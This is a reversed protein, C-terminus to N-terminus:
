KQKKLADGFVDAEGEGSKEVIDADISTKVGFRKGIVEAFKGLSGVATELRKTRAEAVEGEKRVIAELTSDKPLGLGEARKELAEKAEKQAKETLDKVEKEKKEIADLASDKPLGVAEARKELADKAAVEQERKVIVDETAEKVLGVAVARKELSLKKESAEKAAIEDATLLIGKEKLTTEILAFRTVLGELPQLAKELKELKAIIETIDMDSVETKKEASIATEAESILSSLESVLSKLKALRATSIKRGVKEFVPADGKRKNAVINKATGIVFEQFLGIIKKIMADPNELDGRGAVLYAINSKFYAFAEYMAVIELGRAFPKLVDEETLKYEADQKSVTVKALIMLIADAFDAFIKKIVAEDNGKDESYLANWVESQLTDVAAETARFCFGSNFDKEFFSPDEYSNLSIAPFAMGMKKYYKRCHILSVTKDERPIIDGGDKESIAGVIAIIAKPIAVLEGNIIDAYQFKYSGEQNANTKDVWMFAKQYKVYDINDGGAWARVRKLAEVVNWDTNVDAVPLDQFSIANKEIVSDSQRKFVVIQADPVAPRDVIAIRDVYTAHLRNKAKPM